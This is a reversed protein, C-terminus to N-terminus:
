KQTEMLSLLAIKAPAKRINTVGYIVPSLYTSCPSWNFKVHLVAPPRFSVIPQLKSPTATISSSITDIAVVESPKVVVLMKRTLATLAAVCLPGYLHKTKLESPSMLSSECRTVPVCTCVCIYLSTM